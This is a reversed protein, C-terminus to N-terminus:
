ENSKDTISKHKQKRKEEEDKQKQKLLLEVDSSKLEVGEEVLDSINVDGNEVILDKVAGQTTMRVMELEAEDIIGENYKNTADQLFTQGEKLLIKRCEYTIADLPADLLSDLIRENFVLYERIAVRKGDKTKLLQQAVVMKLASLIDLAKGNREGPEFMNIMRRISDPVGSAHLTGYVLHGTMSAIIGEAITEKDRMEGMVIVAPKRRLANRVGASFSPLHKGIETQSVLSSPKEIEDYVFEIPAEYTLVKINANPQRIRWDLSSALFTSKGSGTAGVVMILGQKHSLNDIIPQPVGLEELLPARADITRITIQFGTLGSVLMATVNVRFRLSTNRDVKVTWAMDVDEGSNLRAIASDSEYLKTVIETVESHSLRRNTVRYLRGQIECMIQEDTQINIDSAKMEKAWKVFSPLDMGSWRSPESPYKYNLKQENQESM